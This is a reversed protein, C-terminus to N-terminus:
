SSKEKGNVTVTLILLASFLMIGFYTIPIYFIMSRTQHCSPGTPITDMLMEKKLPIQKSTQCLTPFHWWHQEVGFHFVFLGLGTILIPVYTYRSLQYRRALVSSILLMGFVAREYRCLLCPQINWMYECCFSLGLATIAVSICIWHITDDKSEKQLIIM